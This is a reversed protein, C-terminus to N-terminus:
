SAVFYYVTVVKPGITNDLRSSALLGINLSRRVRSTHRENKENMADSTPYISETRAVRKDTTLGRGERRVNGM